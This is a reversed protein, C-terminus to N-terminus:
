GSTVSASLPMRHVRKINGDTFTTGVSSIDVMSTMAHTLQCMVVDSSVEGYGAPTVVKVTYHVTYQACFDARPPCGTHLKWTWETCAASLVHHPTVSFFVLWEFKSTLSPVVLLYALSLTSILLLVISVTAAQYVTCCALSLMCCLLFLDCGCVM